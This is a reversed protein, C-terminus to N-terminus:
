CIHCNDYVGHSRRLQQHAARVHAVCPRTACRSSFKGLGSSHRRGKDWVRNCKAPIESDTIGVENEDQKTDHMGYLVDVTRPSFAFERKRFPNM